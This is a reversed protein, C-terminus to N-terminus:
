LESEKQRKSKYVLYYFRIIFLILITFMNFIMVYLFTMEYFFLMCFVLIAYNIYTAWVLSDLRIKSIFEDENKEKSFAVFIAGIIFFICILEDAINNTLITFFQGKEFLGISYIAPVKLNNLFSLNIVEFLFLLGVLASPIM